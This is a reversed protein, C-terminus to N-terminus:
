QINLALDIKKGLIHQASCADWLQQVSMGVNPILMNPSLDLLPKLVYATDALAPDPTNLGTAPHNIVADGFCILDIDMAGPGNKTATRNRGCTTEIHKLKAQLLYVDDQTTFQAVTNLASPGHENQLETQYCYAFRIDPFQTRLLTAAQLLRQEADDTNTGLGVTVVKAQSREIVVGVGGTADSVADIKNVSIKVWEAPYDRLLMDACHEAVTEILGCHNNHVYDTVQTAVAMYDITNALDDASAANRTDLGLDIDFILTQKISQEWDYVGIVTDVKLQRLFVVDSHKM